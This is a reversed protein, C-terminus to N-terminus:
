WTKGVLVNGSIDQLADAADMVSDERMALDGLSIMGVLDGNQTVPLRRIQRSGMLHAAVAAEMDPQVSVVASTMVDQVKTKGPLRGAAMCRVVLDRDTVLGCLKGSANCVPLAGLNHQALTRAAVEVSEEPAVRIVQGTMVDQVKM